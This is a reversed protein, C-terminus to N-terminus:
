KAVTDPLPRKGGSPVSVADDPSWGYRTIRKQVADYQLGDPLAALRVPSGDSLFLTDRKKIPVSVADAPSWGKRIRKHYNGRSVGILNAVAVASRGDELRSTNRKNQNNVTSTVFRCNGPSYPGDNEERDLQLGSRYGSRISWLLFPIVSARWEDCVAIGRGGYHPFALNNENYCRSIMSRRVWYLPHKYIPGAYGALERFEDIQITM